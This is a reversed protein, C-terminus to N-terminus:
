ARGGGKTVMNLPSPIEQLTTEINASSHAFSNSCQKTALPFFHIEREILKRRRREDRPFDRNAELDHWDRPCHDM